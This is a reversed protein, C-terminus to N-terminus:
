GQNITVDTLDAFFFSEPDGSYLFDAPMTSVGNITIAWDMKSILNPTIINAIAATFALEMAYQNIPQGVPIANLYDVIAPGGLQAVASSSVFNPAITNWTLTVAVTQQPPDVYVVTYTDPPDSLNVSVNRDNPTVVGGSVYAGSSTTNVGFSFTKEDIVTVTYPGGNVGTMGVVGAIHVGTQGTVLGHNLNTTVVGPSANTIATIGITSGTLNAIDFLAQNIAYAVDYPDGGGCLVKWSGSAQQVSVLRAQVGPVAQLLTKLYTGMGQSGARWAQLVRARYQAETEDPGGPTGTNQNICTLVTASPISTIVQNVTGAPVAWVGDTNAVCFLPDTNGGSKTAGGDQVTYQHTGDSVIVGPAVVFGPVPANSVDKARFTVFVSTRSAGGQPVGVLNGQQVLLWPNATTPSVSNIFEVAAADILALAYTDTSVIDEILGAPLVTYGSNIQTILNILNAWLVAPATPQAGTLSDVTLDVTITPTAM